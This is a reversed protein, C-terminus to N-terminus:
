LRASAPRSAPQLMGAAVRRAERDLALAEQVTAPEVGAEAGFSACTEEVVRPIDSFSTRGALFAEVAVENAGNLVAPMGGGAAL